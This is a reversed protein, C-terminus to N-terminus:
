QSSLGRLHTNANTNRGDMHSSFFGPELKTPTYQLTQKPTKKRNHVALM